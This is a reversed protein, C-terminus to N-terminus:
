HLIMNLTKRGKAFLGKKRKMRQFHNMDTFSLVTSLLGGQLTRGASFQADLAGIETRLRTELTVPLLM